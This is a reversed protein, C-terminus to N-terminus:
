RKSKTDTRGEDKKNRFDGQMVERGFTIVENLDDMSEFDDTTLNKPEVIVNDLIYKTIKKVSTTNTGDIYSQDVADLAASIGNFQAVYEKGGITKKVTYTGAM